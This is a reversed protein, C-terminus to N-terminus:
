KGFPNRFILFGPEDDFSVALYFTSDRLFMKKPKIKVGELQTEQTLTLNLDYEFLYNDYSNGDSALRYGFRYLMQKQEDVVPRLFNMQKELEKKFEKEATENQARFIEEVPVLDDFFKSSNPKTNVIDGNNLYATMDPLGRNVVIFGNPYDNIVFAPTSYFTFSKVTSIMSWNKILDISPIERLVLSDNKPNYSIIESEITGVEGTTFHFQEDKYLFGINSFKRTLEPYFYFLHDVRTKDMRKGTKDFLYFVNDGQVIFSSDNMMQFDILWDGIGNPGESPMELKSLLKKTKLDLMYLLRKELNFIYYTSADESMDSSVLFEGEEGLDIVEGKSEFIVTDIKVSDKSSINTSSKNCSFFLSICLLKIVLYIKWYVPFFSGITFQFNSFSRKFCTISQNRYM